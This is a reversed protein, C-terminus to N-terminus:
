GLASHCLATLAAMPSAYGSGQCTQSVTSNGVGKQTGSLSSSVEPIASKRTIHWGSMSGFLRLFGINGPFGQTSTWRHHYGWKEHPIYSLPRFHPLHLFDIKGPSSPTSPSPLYYTWKEPSTNLSILSLHVSKVFLRPRNNFITAVFSCIMLRLVVEVIFSITKIFVPILDSISLRSPLPRHSRYPKLSPTSSIYMTAPKGWLFTSFNFKSSKVSHTVSSSIM